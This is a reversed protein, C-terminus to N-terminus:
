GRLSLSGQFFYWLGAVIAIVTAFKTFFAGIAAVFGIGTASLVIGLLVCGLFVLVAVLVALAIRRIM